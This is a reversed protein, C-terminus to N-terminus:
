PSTPKLPQTTPTTTHIGSGGVAESDMGTGSRYTDQAIAANQVLQWIAGFLADAPTRDAHLWRPRHADCQRDEPPLTDDTQALCSVSSSPPISTPTAASPV